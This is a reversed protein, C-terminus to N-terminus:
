RYGIRQVTVQHTGAPVNILIFRGNQQTLAGTGLAPISVQASALPQATQADTVRGTVTGTEQASLGPAM